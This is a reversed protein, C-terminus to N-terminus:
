ITWRTWDAFVRNRNVRFQFHILHERSGRIRFFYHTTLRWTLVIQLNRTCRLNGIADTGTVNFGRYVLAVSGNPLVLPAANTTFPDWSNRQPQLVPLKQDTWPGDPSSARSLRIRGDLCLNRYPMWPAVPTMGTCGSPMRDLPSPPHPAPELKGSSCNPLTSTWVRCGTSYILWSSQNDHSLRAAGVNHHFPELAVSKVGFPGLASKSTAHVIQSNNAWNRLPCNLVMYEAFLHYTKEGSHIDSTVIPTGGWTTTGNILLGVETKDVPQLDLEGCVAGRWGKDCSCVGDHCEGNLGCGLADKCPPLPPPPPPPSINQSKKKAWGALGGSSVASLDPTLVSPQLTALYGSTFHLSRNSPTFVGPGWSWPGTNPTVGTDWWVIVANTSANHAMLYADRDADRASAWIGSLGGTFKNDPGGSFLIQNKASNLTGSGVPADCTVADGSVSCKASPWGCRSSTMYDTTRCLLEFGGASGAGAADQPDKQALMIEKASGAPSGTWLGSLDLNRDQMSGALATGSPRPCPSGLLVLMVPLLRMGPGRM